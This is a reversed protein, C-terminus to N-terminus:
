ADRADDSSRAYTERGIQLYSEAALRCESYLCRMHLVLAACKMMTSSGFRVTHSIVVQFKSSTQSVSRAVEYAQDCILKKGQQLKRLYRCVAPLTGFAKTARVTYEGVCFQM